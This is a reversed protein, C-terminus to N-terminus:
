FQHSVKVDVSSGGILMASIDLSYNNDGNRVINATGSEIDVSSQTSATLNQTISSGYGENVSADFFDTLNYDGNLPEGSPVSVTLNISKLESCDTSVGGIQFIYVDESGGGGSILLQAIALSLNDGNIEISGEIGVGVGPCGEPAADDDNGCSSFSLVGAFLLLSCLKAFSIQFVSIKKMFSIIKLKNNILSILM